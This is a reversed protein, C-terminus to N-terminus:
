STDLRRAPRECLSAATLTQDQTPLPLPQNILEWVTREKRIFLEGAAEALCLLVLIARNIDAPSTSPPQHDAALMADQPAREAPLVALVGRSVLGTRIVLVAMVVFMLFIRWRAEDQQENAARWDMARTGQQVCDSAYDHLNFPTHIFIAFFLQDIDIATNQVSEPPRVQSAHIGSSRREVANREPVPIVRKPQIVAM